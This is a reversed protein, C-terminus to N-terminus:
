IFTMVFAITTFTVSWLTVKGTPGSLEMGLIKFHLPGNASKFLLVVITAIIAAPMTIALPDIKDKVFRDWIVFATLRSYSGRYFEMVFVTVGMFLVIAFAIAICWEIFKRPSM